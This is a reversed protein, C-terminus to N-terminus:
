GESSTPRTAAGPKSAPRSPGSVPSPGAPRSAPEVAVGAAPEQRLSASDALVAGVDAAIRKAVEGEVGLLDNLPRDYSSAWVHEDSRGDILHAVIRVRRSDRTVSGELVYDVDLERAIEPLTKGQQLLSMASTRSIVALSSKEALSATIVVTLQRALPEQGAEASFNEMPLVVLSPRVGNRKATLSVVRGPQTMAPRVAVTAQRSAAAPAQHSNILALGLVISAASGVFQAVIRGVFAIWAGRVKANRHKRKKRADKGDDKAAGHSAETQLLPPPMAGPTVSMEAGPSTHTPM